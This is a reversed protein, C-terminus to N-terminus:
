KRDAVFKVHPACMKAAAGHAPCIPRNCKQGALKGLLEFECKATAIKGCSCRPAKPRGCIFVTM